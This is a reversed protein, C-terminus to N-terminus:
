DDRVNNDEFHFSLRDEDLMLFPRFYLLSLYLSLHEVKKSMWLHWAVSDVDPKLRPFHDTSPMDLIYACWRYATL